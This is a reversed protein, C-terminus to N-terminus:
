LSAWRHVDAIGFRTTDGYVTGAATDSAIRLTGRADKEATVTAYGDDRATVLASAHSSVTVNVIADGTVEIEIQEKCDVSVVAFGSEINITGPDSLVQLFLRSAATGGALPLGSMWVMPHSISVVQLRDSRSTSAALADYFDDMSAPTLMEIPRGDSWNEFHPLNSRHTLHVVPEPLSNSRHIFRGSHARPHQLPSFSTLM